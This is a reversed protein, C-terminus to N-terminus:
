RMRTPIIKGTQTRRRAPGQIQIQVRALM